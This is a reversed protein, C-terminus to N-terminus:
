AALKKLVGNATRCRLLGRGKGDIWFHSVYGGSRVEDLTGGDLAALMMAYPDLRDLDPVHDAVDHHFHYELGTPHSCAMAGALDYFEGDKVAARAAPLYDVIWQALHIATADTFFESTEPNFAIKYSM